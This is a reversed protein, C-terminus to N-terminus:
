CRVGMLFVETNGDHFLFLEAKKFMTLVNSCMCRETLVYVKHTICHVFVM